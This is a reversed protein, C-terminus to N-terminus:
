LKYKFYINVVVTRRMMPNLKETHYDSKMNRDHQFTPNLQFNNKMILKRLVSMTKDMNTEAKPLTSVYEIELFMKLANLFYDYKLEFM